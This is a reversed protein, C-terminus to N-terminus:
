TRIFSRRVTLLLFFKSTDLIFTNVISVVAQLDAVRVSWAASRDPQTVNLAVTIFCVNHLTSMSCPSTVVTIM